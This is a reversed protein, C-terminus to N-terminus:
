AGTTFAWVLTGSTVPNGASDTLGPTLKVVYATHPMLPANPTLRAVRTDPFYTVTGAIPTGADELLLTSESAGIMPESFRVSISISLPINTDNPAPTQAIITPPVNDDGTSFTFAFPAGFLPNGVVDVIASTLHLTYSTHPTRPMTTLSVATEGVLGFTGPVVGNADTLYFSTSTIGAVKESFRVVIPSTLSATTSGHAPVVSDVEPPEQDTMTMFSWSTPEIPNNATDRIGGGVSVEYLTAHRLPRSPVLMGVRNVSDYIVDASVPVHFEGSSLRLTSPDVDKVQESFAVSVRVNTAVGSEDARPAMGVVMPPLDEADTGSDVLCSQDDPAGILYCRGDLRCAYDEPCEGSASCRVGCASKPADSGCGFLILACALALRV